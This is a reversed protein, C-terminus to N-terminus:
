NLGNSLKMCNDYAEMFVYYEDEYTMYSMGYWTVSEEIALSVAVEADEYCDVRGEALLVSVTAFVFVLTLFIKKSM